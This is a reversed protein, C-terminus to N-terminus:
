APTLAVPAPHAPAPRRGPLVVAAMLTVVAGVIERLVERDVADVRRLYLCGKGTTYQGLRARLDNYEDLGGGLRLGTRAARPSLSAAAMDYEIGAAYCHCSEFGVIGTGWLVAPEGTGKQM